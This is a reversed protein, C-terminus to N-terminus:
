ALKYKEYNQYRKSNSCVSYGMELPEHLIRLEHKDVKNIIECTLAPPAASSM